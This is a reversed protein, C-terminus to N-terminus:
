MLACLWCLVITAVTSVGLVAQAAPGPPRRVAAVALGLTAGSLFGAAHGLVDAGRGAGLITLLVLSAAAATWPKSTTGGRPGRVLRLGGLIGIAAFTATSAGVAVHDPAHVRAALLNGVAGALLTLSLGGGAGLRRAIAPLLVAIAVANGAVHAADLHLTLATVARWPEVRMVGAAAAGREFWRSGEVPVGTFAFGVLLAAGATVGLLWPLPPEAPPAVSAAPIAEAQEADFAALEEGARTLEQDPVLLAWLQGSPEVRHPIGAAALVLAWEEAQRTTASSRIVAEV